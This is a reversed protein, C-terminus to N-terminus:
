LKKLYKKEISWVAWCGLTDLRVYFRCRGHEEKVYGEMGKLAGATIQVRDGPQISDDILSLDVGHKCIDQIKKIEAESIVVVRGHRSVFSRVGGSDFALCREENRCKMFLYPSMVPVEMTKIRDSWQRKEKMLPLYHEVQLDGLYRALKKDQRPKAMLAYWRKEGVNAQQIM